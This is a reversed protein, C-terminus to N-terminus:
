SRIGATLISILKSAYVILLRKKAPILRNAYACVNGFYQDVRSISQDIEFTGHKSIGLAPGLTNPVRSDAGGISYKGSVLDGARPLLYKSRKRSHGSLYSSKCRGGAILGLASLVTCLDYGFGLTQQCANSAEAFTTIGNRSIYGHNAMM